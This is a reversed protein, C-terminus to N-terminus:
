LPEYGAFQLLNDITSCNQEDLGKTLLSIIIERKPRQGGAEIKRVSRADRYARSREVVDDQTLGRRERLERLTQGFRQLDMRRGGPNTASGDLGVQLISSPQLTHLVVCSGLVKRVILQPVDTPSNRMLEPSLRDPAQKPGESPSRYGALM